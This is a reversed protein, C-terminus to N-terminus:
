ACVFCGAQRNAPHQLHRSVHPRSPSATPPSAVPGLVCVLVCPEGHLEYELQSVKSRTQELEQQLQQQQSRAAALQAQAGELEEQLGEAAVVQVKLDELDKELAQHTHILGFSASPTAPWTLWQNLTLCLDRM